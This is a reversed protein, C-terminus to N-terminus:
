NKELFIACGIQTGWNKEPFIAGGIQTGWNKELFLPRRPPCSPINNDMSWKRLFQKERPEPANQSVAGEYKELFIAGSMQTGWNKELFIAGGIQTDRNKELFIAGGIQSLTIWLM